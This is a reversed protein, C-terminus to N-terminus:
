RGPSTPASPLQACRRRYDALVTERRERAAAPLHEPSTDIARQQARLADACLGLTMAVSALTENALPSYPAIRLLRLAPSVAERALGATALERSLEWLARPEDPGFEVARRRASLREELNEPGLANGLLSWARWDDPHAQVSARAPALLDARRELGALVSLALPSAPDEALAEDLEARLVEPRREGGHPLLQARLAHVEASRITRQAITPSVLLDLTRYPFAAGRLYFDLELELDDLAGPVDPDWRPFAAKWAARPDEALGLRRCFEDFAPAQKSVLFHVLLWSSAYYRRVTTGVWGPDIRKWALLDKVLIRETRNRPVRITGPVTGLTMRSGLAVSGMSELYVAFGEDLWMPKRLLPFSSFHHTLEHILAARTGARLTAPLVVTPAFGDVTTVYAAAQSPSVEWFDGESAFAVAHIVGPLDPPRAFMAHLVAARALEVEEVLATARDPALDTWLAVHESTFERWTPGGRAPCASAGAVRAPGLLLPLALLFAVRARPSAM